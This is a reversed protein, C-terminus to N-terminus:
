GRQVQVELKGAKYLLLEDENLDNKMCNLCVDKGM